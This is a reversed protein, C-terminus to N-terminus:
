RALVVIGVIGGMGFGSDVWGLKELVHGERDELILMSDDSASM